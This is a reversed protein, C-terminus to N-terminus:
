HSAETNTAFFQESTMRHTGEKEPDVCVQSSPRILAWGCSSSSPEQPHSVARKFAGRVRGFNADYDCGIELYTRVAGAVSTRVGVTQTVKLPAAEGTTTSTRSFSSSRPGISCTIRTEPTSSTRCIATVVSVRHPVLQVSPVSPLSAEPLKESIVRHYADCEETGFSLGRAQCAEALAATRPLDRRLSVTEPETADPGPQPLNLTSGNM